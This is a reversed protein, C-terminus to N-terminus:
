KRSTETLGSTVREPKSPKLCWSVLKWMPKEKTCTFFFFFLESYDNDGSNYASCKDSNTLGMNNLFINTPYINNNIIQISISVAVTLIFFLLFLYHMIGHAHIRFRKNTQDM